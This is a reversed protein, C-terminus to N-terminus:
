HTVGLDVSVIGETIRSVIGTNSHLVLDYVYRTQTLQATTAANMSLTILGTNGGTSVTIPIYTNSTYTKRIQSNGTYGTIDFPRNYVDILYINYVFDANQNVVLNTKVTM